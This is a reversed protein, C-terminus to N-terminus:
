QFADMQFIPMLMAFVLFGVVLGVGLILVPELLTMLVKTLESIEEEYTDAIDELARALEGSEEGVAILQVFTDPINEASSLAQAFGAGGAIQQQCLTLADALQENVVTPGAIELSRLVPIGSRLLLSTTRSFRELDIKLFFNAFFPIGSMLRFFVARLSVVFAPSRLLVLLLFLAVVAFPWLKCALDSLRMVILTPLPLNSGLDRFLVLIRPLVFTLIFVVTVCGLALMFAPYVLATRVKSAIEEQKRYYVVVNALMEKLQGSEEGARAMAIYLRPFYDAHEALCASFSRGNRINSVIDKLVGVLRIDKTRRLIMELARLLPVGSKLLSVLQKSFTLLSRSSSASTPLPSHLSIEANKEEVAVPLLNMRSVLDIAERQDTALIEGQVTAGTDKKAKYSFLPM